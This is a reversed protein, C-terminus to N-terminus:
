IRHANLFKEAKARTARRPNNQQREALSIMQEKNDVQSIYQNFSLIVKGLLINRCESTKYQIKEVRLLEKTIRDQLYPKARAIKGSNDIVHGATIMSADSLLNYYKRFIKDFRKQSDVTTLDAMVDMANWKIINNESDLLNVFFDFQSYLKQPDKGSVIRLIKACNFKVRPTESSIGNLIEALFDSNNVAKEAIDEARIEKKGLLDLIDSKKMEGYRWLKSKLASNELKQKMVL